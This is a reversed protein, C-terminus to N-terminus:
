GTVMLGVSDRKTYTRSEGPGLPIPDAADVAGYTANFIRQGVPPWIQINNAADIHKLTCSAGNPLDALVIPANNISVTQRQYEGLHEPIDGGAEPAMYTALTERNALYLLSANVSGKEQAKM